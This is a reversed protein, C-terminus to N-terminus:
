LKKPKALKQQCNIWLKMIIVARNIEIKFDIMGAKEVLM